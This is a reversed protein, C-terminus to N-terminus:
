EGAKERIFELIAQVATDQQEQWTIAAAPDGKQEGYNGFQAHNGGQIIVVNETYNINKELGANLTGYVTLADEPAVNGFIYAGLLVLGEVRDKHGAFYSSAMAGGMSHGGIFWNSIGNLEKFARDAANASFIAMNFPMKMLVSAIGNQRLKELIPLYATYEVKAGPYFILATDAREEPLLLILDEKVQVAGSQLVANATEDARYYDSAYVLFGGGLIILLALFSILIVRFRKKM